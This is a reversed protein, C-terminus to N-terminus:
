SQGLERTRTKAQSMPEKPPVFDRLDGQQDERQFMEEILPAFNMTITQRRIKGTRTVEGEEASLPRPFIAYRRLLMTPGVGENALEENVGRLIEGVFDQVAKDEVLTEYSSYAISQSKAWNGLHRYDPYILAAAFDRDHGLAVAAKIYLSNVIHLEYAKPQFLAGSRMPGEHAIRGLPKLAGDINVTGRDGTRIWGEGDSAPEVAGNAGLYGVCDTPGRMRIEGDDTLAYEITGTRYKGDANPAPKVSEVIGCGCLEVTSYLNKLHVGISRFFAFLGPTGDAGTVYVARLRSMGTMNRLPGHILVEGLGHLFKDTISVTRGNESAEGVRRATSMSWTYLWRKVMGVQAMNLEVDSRIRGLVAPSAILFTPAIKRIDRDATEPSEPCSLGCGTALAISFQLFDGIWSAPLFCLVEDRESLNELRIFFQAAAKIAAFTFLAPKPRGMEGSTFAILGYDDSSLEAVRDAFWDPHGDLIQRGDDLVDGMLRCISLDNESAEYDECVVYNRLRRRGADADLLRGLHSDTEVVAFELGASSIFYDLEDSNANPHLPVPVAGLAQVASVSWYLALRNDGVIGVRMKRRMGLSEFGAAMHAVRELAQEWTWVHWIGRVKERFGVRKPFVRANRLVLAPMVEPDIKAEGTTSAFSQNEKGMSNSTSEAHEMTM